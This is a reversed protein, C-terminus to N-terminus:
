VRGSNLIKEVESKKDAEFARQRKERTIARALMAISVIAVLSMAATLMCLHVIIEQLRVIQPGERADPNATAIPSSTTSVTSLKTGTARFSAADDNGSITSTSTHLPSQTPQSGEEVPYTVNNRLSTAYDVGHRVEEKVEELWGEFTEIM